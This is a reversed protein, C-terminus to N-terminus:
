KAKSILYLSPASGCCARVGALVCVCV